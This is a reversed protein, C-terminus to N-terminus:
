HVNYNIYTSFLFSPITLLLPCMLIMSFANSFMLAPCFAPSPFFAKQIGQLLCGAMKHLAAKGCDKSINISSDFKKESCKESFGCDCLKLLVSPRTCWARDPVFCIGHFCCTHDCQEEGKRWPLLCIYQLIKNRQLLWNVLVSVASTVQNVRQLVKLDQRCLSLEYKCLLSGSYGM